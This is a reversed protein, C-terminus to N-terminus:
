FARNVDKIRTYATSTGATELYGYRTLRFRIAGHTIGLLRALHKITVGEENYAKWLLATYEEAEARNQKHDYRVKQAAPQLEKLRALTEPKPETREVGVTVEVYTVPIEPIPFTGDALLNIADVPNVGMEIQRIRERSMGLPTAVSQLTWGKVRLALIYADRIKKDHAVSRLVDAAEQPLVQGHIVPVARLETIKRTYKTM